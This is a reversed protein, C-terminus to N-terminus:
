ASVVAVTGGWPSSPFPSTRSPIRSLSRPRGATQSLDGTDVLTVKWPESKRQHVEMHNGIDVHFTVDSTHLFITLM